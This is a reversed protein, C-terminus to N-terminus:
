PHRQWLTTQCRAPVSVMPVYWQTPTLPHGMEVEVTGSEVGGRPQFEAGMELSQEAKVEPTVTSTFYSAYM